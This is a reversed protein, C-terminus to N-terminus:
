DIKHEAIQAQLFDFLLILKLSNVETGFNTDEGHLIAYRSLVPIEDGHRFEQLVIKFYFKKTTQNFDKSDVVSVVVADLDKKYIKKVTMPIIDHIVGEIQPLITCVSANFHKGLHADIGERLVPLRSKLLTNKEWGAYLRNIENAGYLKVFM